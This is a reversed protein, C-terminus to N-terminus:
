SACSCWAHGKRGCCRYAAPSTGQQPDKELPGRGSGATGTESKPAGMNLEVIRGAPQGGGTVARDVRQSDLDPHEGPIQGLRQEYVVAPSPPDRGASLDLRPFRGALRCMSFAYNGEIIWREGAVLKEQIAVFEDHPLPNWAEGYYIADLHILPLDLAAALQRAITSKGSGGCGIIAIRDV